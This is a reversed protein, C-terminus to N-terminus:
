ESASAQNQSRIVGRCFLATPVFSIMGMIFVTLVEIWDFPRATLLPAIFFFLILGIFLSSAALLLGLGMTYGLGNRGLLLIGGIVWGISVLIDAASVAKEGLPPISGDLIGPIIESLALAIFALGFFVLVWGSIKDAVRGELRAKIQHHDISRLLLILGYGSILMLLLYGAASWHYPKGLLYAFYNYIVYILAGPLLLTGLLKDRKIMVLSFLFFPLGILINVLDNTLFMEAIEPSPYFFTPFALGLGSLAAMLVALTSGLFLFSAKNGRLLYASSSNETM